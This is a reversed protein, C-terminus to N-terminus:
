FLRQLEATVALRSQLWPWCPQSTGGCSPQCLHRFSRCWQELSGTGSANREMQMEWLLLTVKRVRLLRKGFHAEAATEGLPSGLPSLLVAHCIVMIEWKQPSVAKLFTNDGKCVTHPSHLM